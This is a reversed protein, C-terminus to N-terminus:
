YNIWDRFNTYDKIYRTIGGDTSDITGDEKYIGHRIYCISSETKDNKDYTLVMNYIGDTIKSIRNSKFGFLSMEDVIANSGIKVESNYVKEDHPSTYSSYYAVENNNISYSIYEDSIRWKNESVKELVDAIRIIDISGYGEVENIDNNAIIEGGIIIYNKGDNEKFFVNFKSANANINYGGNEYQYTLEDILEVSENNLNYLSFIIKTSNSDGSSVTLMELNDDNDFDDILVSILGTGISSYTLEKDVEVMGSEYLINNRVYDRYIIYPHIQQLKETIDDSGVEKEGEKLISEANEYQKQVIYVDATKVYAQSKTPDIEVAELYTDKAKGYELKEVYLDGEKIKSNYKDNRQDTMYIFFVTLASIGIFIIIFSIIFRKSVSKHKQKESKKNDDSKVSSNIKNIKDTKNDKNINLEKKDTKITDKEENLRAGCKVCFKSNDDNKSGCKTCFM